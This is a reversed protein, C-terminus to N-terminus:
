KDVVQTAMQGLSPLMSKLDASGGMSSVADLVSTTGAAGTSQGVGSLTQTLFGGYLEAKAAKIKSDSCREAKEKLNAVKRAEAKTYDDNSFPIKEFIDYMNSVVTCNKGDKCKKGYSVKPFGYWVTEKDAETSFLEYCKENDDDFELHDLFADTCDRDGLGSKASDATTVGLKAWEKVLDNVTNIEDSTPTCDAVLQKQQAQLNQVGSVLGVVTPVLSTTTETANAKKTAVPAAKKINVAAQSVCTVTCACIIFISLFKKM